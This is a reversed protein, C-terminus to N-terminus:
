ANWLRVEDCTIHKDKLLTLLSLLSASAITTAYKQVERMLIDVIGEEVDYYGTYDICHVEKKIEIDFFKKYQFDYSPDRAVMSSIEWPLLKTMEEVTPAPILMADNRIFFDDDSTKSDTFVNIFTGDYMKMVIYQLKGLKYDKDSDNYDTWYFITKLKIKYKNFLKKCLDPHAVLSYYNKKLINKHKKSIETM